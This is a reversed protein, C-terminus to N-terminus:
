RSTQEQKSEPIIIIIIITMYNLNTMTTNRSSFIM